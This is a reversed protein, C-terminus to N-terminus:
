LSFPAFRRILSSVGREGTWEKRERWDKWENRMFILHNNKVVMFKMNTRVTHLFLKCVPLEGVVLLIAGGVELELVSTLVCIM